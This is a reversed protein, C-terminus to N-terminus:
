WSNCSTILKCDVKDQTLGQICLYLPKVRFSCFLCLCWSSVKRYSYNKQFFTVLDGTFYVVDIKGQEKCHRNRRNLCSNEERPYQLEVTVTSRCKFLVLLFTLYHFLSYSTWVQRNVGIGERCTSLFKM